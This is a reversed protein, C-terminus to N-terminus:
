PKACDTCYYSPNTQWNCEPLPNGTQWSLYQDESNMVGGTPGKKSLSQPYWHISGTCTKEKGDLVMTLTFPVTQEVDPAKAKFWHVDFRYPGDDVKEAWTAHELPKDTVNQTLNRNADLDIRGQGCPGSLTAQTGGIRANGPCYIELDLDDFTKWSLFVELRGQKAGLKRGQDIIPNPPPAPPPAPAPAPHPAPPPVPAQAMRCAPKRTLELEAAHVQQQLDRGLDREQALADVRPQVPCAYWAFPGAHFGCAYLFQQGVLVLIAAFVIWGIWMAVRM